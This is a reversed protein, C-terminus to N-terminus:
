VLVVVCVFLVYLLEPSGFVELWEKSVTVADRLSSGILKGINVMIDLSNLVLSFSASFRNPNATNNLGNNYNNNTSIFYNTTSTPKKTKSTTVVSTTPQTTPATSSSSLCDFTRKM